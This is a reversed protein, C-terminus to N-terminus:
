LAPQGRTGSPQKRIRVLRRNLGLRNLILANLTFLLASGCVLIPMGIMQPGISEWGAAGSRVFRCSDLPVFAVWGVLSGMFAFDVPEMTPETKM